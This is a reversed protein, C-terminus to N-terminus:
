QAKINAARIVKGWKEIEAKIQRAFQEPSNAVPEFGLVALREKIDPLGVARIIERHLLAVIEKPTGAPVLVAFWADGEVEPYGAEAMTPVQPLAQARAASSVALARLKGDKILPIAPPPTGWSIPTHGALTAAVAAGGGSYPVHVVDLKLSLRFLEGVLHAPTGTSPSAYSYKGPNARILEVLEKVTQAPLSPHVALVNTTSVALTVPDYDKVPDYPVQEYLSPNIVFPAGVVAITYGDPAAKAARGMGINGGAGPANEVFFQQGLQESLKQAMLRAFVDTPGAPSYPVLMRVTRAPYAQAQAPRALPALAASGAALQLFRRRALTM